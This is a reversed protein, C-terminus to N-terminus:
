LLVHNCHGVHSLSVRAFLEYPCMVSFSEAQLNGANHADGVQGRGHQSVQSNTCMGKAHLWLCVIYLASHSLPCLFRAEKEGNELAVSLAGPGFLHHFPFESRLRERALLGQQLNLLLVDYHIETLHRTWPKRDPAFTFHALFVKVM